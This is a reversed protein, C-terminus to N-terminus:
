RISVGYKGNLQAAYKMRYHTYLGVSQPFGPTSLKGQIIL